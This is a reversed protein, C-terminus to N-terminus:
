LDTYDTVPFQVLPLCYARSSPFHKNNYTEIVTTLFAPVIPYGPTASILNNINQLIALKKKTALIFNTKALTSLITARIFTDGM